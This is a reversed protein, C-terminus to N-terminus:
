GKLTSLHNYHWMSYYSTPVSATSPHATVNKYLSKRVQCPRLGGWQVLHLLRGMLPWHVLWWIATYHDMARRNKQAWQLTLVRPQTDRLMDSSYYFLRRWINSPFSPTHTCVKTFTATWQHQNYLPVLQAHVVVFTQQKWTGPMSTWTVRCHCNQREEAEPITLILQMIAILLSPAHTSQPGNGKTLKKNPTFWNNSESLLLMQKCTQHTTNGPSWSQQSVPRNDTLPAPQYCGAM